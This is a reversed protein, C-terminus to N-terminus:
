LSRWLHLLVEEIIEPISHSLKHFQIEMQFLNQVQDSDLKHIINEMVNIIERTQSSFPDHSLNYLCHPFKSYLHDVICFMENSIMTDILIFAQNSTTQNISYISYSILNLLDSSIFPAFCSPSCKILSDIMKFLHYITNEKHEISSYPFQLCPCIINKNVNYYQSEIQPIQLRYSIGIFKFIFYLEKEIGHNIFLPIIYEELVYKIDSIVNNKVLSVIILSVRNLIDRSFGLDINESCKSFISLIIPTLSTQSEIYCLTFNYVIEIFSSLQEQFKECSFDQARVLIEWRNNIFAESIKYLNQKWSRENTCQIIQSISSSMLSISKKDLGCSMIKISDNLISEYLNYAKLSDSKQIRPCITSYLFSLSRISIEQIEGTKSSINYLIGELVSTQWESSEFFLEPYSKLLFIYCAYCWGEDNDHLCIKSLIRRILETVLLMKNEKKLYQKFLYCSSSISIIKSKQFEIENLVLEFTNVIISSPFISVLPDIQLLTAEFYENEPSILSLLDPHYNNRILRDIILSFIPFRLSNDISIISSVLILLSSCLVYLNLCALKHFFELISDSVAENQLCLDKNDNLVEIFVKLVKTQYSNSHIFYRFVSLFSLETKSDDIHEVHKVLNYIGYVKLCFSDENTIPFTIIYEAFMEIDFLMKPDLKLSALIFRTEYVNIDENIEFVVNSIVSPLYYKIYDIAISKESSFFYKSKRIKKIYIYLLQFVCGAQEKSLSRTLLTIFLDKTLDPSLILVTSLADFLDNFYPENQHVFNNLDENFQQYICVVFIEKIEENIANWYRILMGNIISYLLKLAGKGELNMYKLFYLSNEKSELIVKMLRYKQDYDHNNTLLYLGRELEENTNEM